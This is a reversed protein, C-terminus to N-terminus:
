FLGARCAILLFAVGCPFVPLVRFTSNFLSVRTYGYVRIAIRELHGLGRGRRYSSKYIRTELDTRPLPLSPVLDTFGYIRLRRGNGPGMLSWLPQVHMTYYARDLGKM